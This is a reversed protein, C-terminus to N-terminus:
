RVAGSAGADDLGRVLEDYLTLNHCDVCPRGDGGEHHCRRCALAGSGLVVVAHDRRTWEPREGSSTSHGSVDTLDIAIESGREVIEGPAPAQSTVFALRDESTSPSDLGRRVRLEYKSLLVEAAKRDRGLLNPAAFPPPALAPASPPIARWAASALLLLVGAAGVFGFVFAVRRIVSTLSRM